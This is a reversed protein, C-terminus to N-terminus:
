SKRTSTVQIYYWGIQADWKLLIRAYDPIENGFVAIVTTGVKITLTRNQTENPFLEIENIGNLRGYYNPLRLEHCALPASICTPSDPFTLETLDAINNEDVDSAVNRYLSHNPATIIGSTIYTIPASTQYDISGGTIQAGLIVGHTQNSLVYKNLRINNKTIIVLNDCLGVTTLFHSAEAYRPLIISTNGCRGLYIGNTTGEIGIHEFSNGEICTFASSTNPTDDAYIAWEGAVCRGGTIVNENSWRANATTFEICKKVANLMNFNIKNYQNYNTTDANLKICSGNGTNRVYNLNIVSNHSGEIIITAIDSDSNIKGNSNIEKYDGSIKIPESVYYEKNLNVICNTDLAKQIPVLDDTTYDGKAGLQEVNLTNNDIVLEAVLSPDKLAIIFMDDVTDENTVPRAKYKASGGDNVSYYGYTQLFSGDAINDAEKMAEVSNYTLLGQLQVYQAVIDALVGSEAMEDLKNNIEEQIDLNAFYTDVYSKLEIYLGQLEEVAEGNNNVTPIVTNELYNVLWLLMEYYSLSDVYSSPLVGISMLCHKFTLKEIKEM